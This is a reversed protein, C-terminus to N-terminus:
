AIGAEVELPSGWGAGRLCALVDALTMRLVAGPDSPSEEVGLLAVFQGATLHAWWRHANDYGVGARHTVLFGVEAGANVRETETEVLWAAIQADSATKAAQGGKVEVVVGATLGPTLRVDGQDDRGHLVVREAHPFGLRRAARVVASEAATGLAKSKSM